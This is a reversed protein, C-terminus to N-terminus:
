FGYVKRCTDGFIAAKDEPCAQEVFDEVLGVVRSVPATVLCVPWDSGMMLRSPGFNEFLHYLYPRIDDASWDELRAETVLGSLKCVCNPRRAVEVIMESWSRWEGRAIEPKGAHDLVLHDGGVADLFAPLQPWERERVLIDYALGGSLLRRIGAQVDARLLWEPDKEDQVMHRIGVLPRDSWSALREDLDPAAVDTWGVVGRIWPYDATLSLLWETETEDQRAQVAISGAICRADLVPKVHQPLWDRALISGGTIWPYAEASYRWFHQHADIREM